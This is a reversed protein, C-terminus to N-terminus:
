KDNKRFGNRDIVIKIAFLANAIIFLFVAAQFYGFITAAWVASLFSM